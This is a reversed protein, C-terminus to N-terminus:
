YFHSVADSPLLGSPTHYLPVNLTYPVTGHRAVPQPPSYVVLAIEELSFLLHIYNCREHKYM